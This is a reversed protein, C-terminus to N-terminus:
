RTTLSLARGKLAKEPVIDTSGYNFTADHGHIEKYGIIKKRWVQVSITGLAKYKAKMDEVREGPFAERTNLDAFRYTLRERSKGEGVSVHRRVSYTGREIDYESKDAEFGGARTGDLFIAFSLCDTDFEYGALVQCKIGFNAGSVAEIYKTVVANSEAPEDDDDEFETAPEGNVEVTVKFHGVRPM